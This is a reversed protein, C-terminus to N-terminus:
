FRTKLNSLSVLVWGSSMPKTMHGYITEWTHLEIYTYALKLTSQGISLDTELHAARIQSLNPKSMAFQSPVKLSISWSLDLNSKTLVIM